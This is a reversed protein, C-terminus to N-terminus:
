RQGQQLDRLLRDFASDFAADDEWKSFDPIFYERIERALDKGSDADFCQWDRIAEFSCLRVPFLIRRRERIERQRANYIETKVWESAMSNVSLVILLRDHLRIASSLQEHIQRGAFRRSRVM